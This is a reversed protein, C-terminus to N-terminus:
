KSKRLKVLIEALQYLEDPMNQNTGDEWRQVIRLKRNVLLGLASQSLKHKQRFKVVQEATKM